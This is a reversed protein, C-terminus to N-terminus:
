PTITSLTRFMGCTSEQKALLWERFHGQIADLLVVKQEPKLNKSIIAENFDKNAQLRRFVEQIFEFPSLIPIIEDAFLKLNKIEEYNPFVKTFNENVMLPVVQILGFEKPLIFNEFASPKIISFSNMEQNLFEQCKYFCKPRSFLDLFERCFTMGISELTSFINMFNANFPGLSVNIIEGLLEPEFSSYSNVSSDCVNSLHIARSILTINMDNSHEILTIRKVGPIFIECNKCRSIIVMEFYSTFYINSNTCESILLKRKKLNELTIVKNVLNTIEIYESYDIDVAQKKECINVFEAPECNSLVKSFENMFAKNKLENFILNNKLFNPINLKLSLSTPKISQSIFSDDLNAQNNWNTSSQKSFDRRNKALNFILLIKFWNKKITMKKINQYSIDKVEKEFLLKCKTFFLLHNEEKFSKLNAELVSIAMPFTIDEGELSNLKDLIQKLPYETTISIPVIHIFEAKIEM